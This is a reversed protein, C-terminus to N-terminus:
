LFVIIILLQQARMIRQMHPSQYYYLPFYPWPLAAVVVCEVWLRQAKELYSSIRARRKDGSV